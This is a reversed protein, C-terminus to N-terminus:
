ASLWLMSIDVDLLYHEIVELAFTEPEASPRFAGTPDGDYGALPGYPDGAGLQRMYTFSECVRYRGWRPRKDGDM